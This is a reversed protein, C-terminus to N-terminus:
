LDNSHITAVRSSSNIDQFVLFFILWKTKQTDASKMLLNLKLAAM